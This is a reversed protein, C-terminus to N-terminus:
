KDNQGGKIDASEGAFVLLSKGAERIIEKDSETLYASGSVFDPGIAIVKGNSITVEVCWSNEM